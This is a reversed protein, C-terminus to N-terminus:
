HDAYKKAQQIAARFDAATLKNVKLKYAAWNCQDNVVMLDNTDQNKALMKVLCKMSNWVSFLAVQFSTESPGSRNRVREDKITEPIIQQLGLALLEIPSTFCVTNMYKELNDHMERIWSDSPSQCENFINLLIMISAPHGLSERKISSQISDPVGPRFCYEKYLGFLKSM